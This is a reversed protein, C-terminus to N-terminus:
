KAVVLHSRNPRRGHGPAAAHIANILDASSGTKVLFSSAGVEHARQRASEQHTTGSMIVVNTQPSIARIRTTAEFGDMPGILNVDMVVVDPRHRLVADIAQQGSQVPPALVELDPTYSVLIALADSLIPDDDCILVRITTVTGPIAEASTHSVETSADPLYVRFSAGGGQREEVWARGGHIQAYRSVLSLGLGLGPQTTENGRRFPEFIEDRLDAPVGPGADEVTILVGAGVSETKVWMAVGADLHKAANSLLNDMIREVQPVDVNVMVSDLSTHIPHSRTVANDELVGTVLDAVDCRTRRAELPLLPDSSILDHSLRKMKHVSREIDDLLRLQEDPAMAPQAGDESTLGSRLVGALTLVTSIPGRLDHALTQLVTYKLGDLVHLRKVVQRQSALADELESQSAALDDERDAGVMAIAAHSALLLGVDESTEDFAGPERSLLNLAGLSDGRVFLQLCLMSGAGAHAAAAAFNPWRPETRLDDSRVTLHERATSLCPGQGTEYQLADIRAVLDDTKMPTTIEGQDSVLTIGACQAGPIKDVAAQVVAQMIQDKDPQAQLERAFDSLWQALGEAPDSGGSRRGEGGDDAADVMSRVM